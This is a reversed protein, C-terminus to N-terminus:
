RKRGSFSLYADSEGASACVISRFAVKRRLRLRLRLRLRIPLALLERATGLSKRMSQSSFVKGSKATLAGPATPRPEARRLSFTPARRQRARVRGLM